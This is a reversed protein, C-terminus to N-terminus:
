DHVECRDEDDDDDWFQWHRQDRGPECARGRDDAGLDDGTEAALLRGNGADLKLQIRRGDAGWESVEWMLFGNEEDLQVAMVRGPVAMTAIRIADAADLKVTDLITQTCGSDAGISGGQVDTPLQAITVAETVQIGAPLTARDSRLDVALADFGSTALLSGIAMTATRLANM